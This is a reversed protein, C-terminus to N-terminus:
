ELANRLLILAQERVDKLNGPCNMSAAGAHGGGTGGFKRALEDMLKGLHLKDLTMNERVRGCLRVNGKEESGVMAVDAGIRLLMVAADGEFSGVESFVILHDKINFIDLRQAAKLMAIRKSQDEPVKLAELVRKYDAGCKILFDVASFTEGKALRFQGTDSVIGALLLNAVDASIKAGLRQILDIILESESPYDERVYYVRAIQRMEEVPAHHDLVALTPLNQRLREGLKGLHEFSSTDVLIIIGADLPPDIEIERGVASLINQAPRSVSESAGARVQAGMQRLAEQLAIASGVADPDANHHCLILIRQGSKFCSVLFDLVEKM